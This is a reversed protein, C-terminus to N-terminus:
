LTRRNVSHREGVRNTDFYKIVGFNDVTLLLAIVAMCLSLGCENWSLSVLQNKSEGSLLFDVFDWRIIFNMCNAAKLPVVVRVKDRTWCTSFNKNCFKNLIIESATKDDFYGIPDRGDFNKAVFANRYHCRVVMCSQDFDTILFRWYDLSQTTRFVWSEVARMDVPFCPVIQNEETGCRKSLQYNPSLTQLFVFGWPDYVSLEHVVTDDERNVKIIPIEYTEWLFIVPLFLKVTRLGVPLKM